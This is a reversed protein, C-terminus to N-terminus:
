KALEIARTLKKKFAALDPFEGIPLNHESFLSALTVFDLFRSNGEPEVRCNFCKFCIEVGAVPKKAADYFVFANHPIHCAMIPYWPHQGTVAALLRKVQQATLLAGDKNIVGPKLTMGPFIVAETGKDSPWAYARVETFQVGPWPEGAFLSLASLLLLLIARKM